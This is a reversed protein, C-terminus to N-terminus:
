YSEGESGSAVKGRHLRWVLVLSALVLPMAVAFWSLAIALGSSDGASNQTTLSLDPSGSARLLVPYMCAATALSLGGVFASSALFAARDRGGRLAPFVLLIGALAAAAPLWALPRSVLSPLFRPHVSATALTVALWLAGVARYGRRAATRSRAQVPGGTKWALFAAGHATLAAFAFLGVLGTYWDLIGVPERASFDTFLPLEFWGDADLPVGRLLNGLAAGLFVPLLASSVAFFFDWTRRWVADELHSRFELSIGRVILCWLVLFIAFYFGSVGASLARPFAVFLAGGAALLWVENADWYPGIAALVQRREADSRAVFVHLAGAGFDFGDLVVYVTLLFASIAYWIEPM